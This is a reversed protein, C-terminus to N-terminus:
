LPSRERWHLTAISNSNLSLATKLTDSVLELKTEKTLHRTVVIGRSPLGFCKEVVPRYLRTIQSRGKETDTLKCEFILIEHSLKVIWDTQCYGFGNVDCFRFWQGSIVISPHFVEGLAKGFNSEYQHGLKKTGRPRSNPINAPKGTLWAGQLGDIVRHGFINCHGRGTKTM